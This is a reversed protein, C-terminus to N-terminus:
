ESAFLVFFVIVFKSYLTQALFCNFVREDATFSGGREGFMLGIGISGKTRNLTKNIQICKPLVSQSACFHRSTGPVKFTCIICFLGLLFFFFSSVRHALKNRWLQQRVVPTKIVHKYPYFIRTRGKSFKGHTKM